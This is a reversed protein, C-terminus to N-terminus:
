WEVRADPGSNRNHRVHVFPPVPTYEVNDQIRTFNENM